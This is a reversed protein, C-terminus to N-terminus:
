ERPPLARLRAVSRKLGNSELTGLLEERTRAPRRLAEAQERLVQDVGGPSLELLRLVFQDPSQAEIGFPRLSSNPFDTLNHTVIILAGGQIAAALVHRDKPDPLRLGKILDRYGSILADPIARNMLARTRRLASRHLDPRKLLLSAFCEDLIEDTWHARVLGHAALRLLLDRLPASWLVCADYLAPLAM